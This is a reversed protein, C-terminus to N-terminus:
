SIMVHRPKGLDQGRTDLSFSSGTRNRLAQPHLTSGAICHQVPRLKLAIQMHTRFATVMHPKRGPNTQFVEKIRIRTHFESFGDCRFVRHLEAIGLFILIAETLCLFISFFRIGHDHHSASQQIQFHHRTRELELKQTAGHTRHHAFTKHTCHIM